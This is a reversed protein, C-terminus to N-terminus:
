APDLRRRAPETTWSAWMQIKPHLSWGQDQCVRPHLRKWCLWEVLEAVLAALGREEPWWQGVQLFYLLSESPDQKQLGRVPSLPLPYSKWYQGQGKWDLWLERWFFQEM